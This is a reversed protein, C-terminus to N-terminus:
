RRTSTIGRVAKATSTAAATPAKATRSSMQIPLTNLISKLVTIDEM